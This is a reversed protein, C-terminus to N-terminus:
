PQREALSEDSEGRRRTLTVPMGDPYPQITVKDIFMSLVDRKWANNQKNNEQRRECGRRVSNLDPTNSRTARKTLEALETEHSQIRESLRQVQRRWCADDM